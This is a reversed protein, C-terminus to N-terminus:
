KGKPKDSPNSKEVLKARNPKAKPRNVIQKEVKKRKNRRRLDIFWLFAFLSVTLPILHWLGNPQYYLVALAGLFFAVAGGLAIYPNIPRKKLWYINVLNFLIMVVFAYIVTLLLDLIINGTLRM